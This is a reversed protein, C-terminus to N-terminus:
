WTIRFAWSAAGCPARRVRRRAFLLPGHRRDTAIEPLRKQNWLQMTMGIVREGARNLMGAVVSSDVGGSMAVAITSSLCIGAGAKESARGGAVVADILADIQEVTNSRGLSFRVSSRAQERTLGIAALVHSPETAGSSCASGSSVAFGKLDLAILLPESDIGDFRINSTNGVRPAGAGNVHAGCRARSNGAGSSRAFREATSSRRRERRDGMGGRARLGGRGRRKGHGRANQARSSRRLASAAADTGKRVYLAGM